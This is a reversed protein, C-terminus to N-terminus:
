MKREYRSFLDFTNSVSPWSEYETDPNLVAVLVTANAVTQSPLAVCM